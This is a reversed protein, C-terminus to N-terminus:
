LPWRGEAVASEVRVKDRKQQARRAEQGRRGRLGQARLADWETRAERVVADYWVPRAGPITDVAADLLTRASMDKADTQRLYARWPNVIDGPMMRRAVSGAYFKEVQALAFRPDVDDQNMLRAWMDATDQLTQEDMGAHRTDVTAMAGILALATQRTWTM